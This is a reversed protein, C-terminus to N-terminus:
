TVHSAQGTPEAKGAAEDVRWGPEGDGAKPPNACGHASPPRSRAPLDSGVPCDLWPVQVLKKM